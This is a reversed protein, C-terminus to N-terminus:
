SEGRERIVVARRIAATLIATENDKPWWLSGPPRPVGLLPQPAVNCVFDQARDSLWSMACFPQVDATSFRELQARLEQVLTM